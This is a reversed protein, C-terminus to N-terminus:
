GLLRRGFGRGMPRGVRNARQWYSAEDAELLLKDIVVLERTPIPEAPQLCLYLVRGNPELVAVPSGGRPVCYVRGPTLRSAIKFFGHQRLEAYQQGSLVRQVMAEARRAATRRRRYRSWLRQGSRGGFWGLVLLLGVLGALGFVGPDVASNM